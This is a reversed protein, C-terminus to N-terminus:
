SLQSKKVPISISPHMPGILNQEQPKHDGFANVLDLASCVYAGKGNSIARLIHNHNEDMLTLM